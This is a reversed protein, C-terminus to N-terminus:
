LIINDKFNQKFDNKDDLLKHNIFSIKFKFSYYLICYLWCNYFLRVYFIGNKTDMNLYFLIVIKIKIKIKINEEWLIQINHIYTLFYTEILFM